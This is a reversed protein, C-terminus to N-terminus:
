GFALLGEAPDFPNRHLRAALAGNKLYFAVEAHAGLRAAQAALSRAQREAEAASEFVLEEDLNASAVIWSADRPAVTILVPM